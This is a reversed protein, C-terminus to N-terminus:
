NEYSFTIILEFGSKYDPNYKIKGDLDDEIIRKVHNLGLGSGKTTTVGEDFIQNYDLIDKSLNEGIDKISILFEKNNKIFEIIIKKANKKRSNSLINDIVVSLEIPQFKKIYVESDNKFEVDLKHLALYTNNIYKVIYKVIDEETELTAKLFNSKTTFRTITAIKENALSIGQIFNIIEKNNLKIGKDLKRKLLLIKKSIDDSYVGIIHNSDRLDKYEVTESSKYRTIQKQQNEVRSEAKKRAEEEERAKKEAKLKAVEAEAREKEKKLTELEAKRRKEEERIAKAEAEKRKKEEEFAKKEAEKRKAEEEEAKREAEEKEKQLKLFNKEILHVNTKLDEDNTQNAIIELDSIFKQQNEDIKDNVINVLDRNYDIIQIDKNSSLRKIIQIFDLKSGLNSKAIDINDSDKDESLENRYDSAIKNGESGDGFYKNRKFGEGWLVGVVYRELRRHALEFASLLEFYGATEVLGGDRSSVEKFEEFDDTVIEIRGFLDRTGLFRNYGQQSRFDIGWSDNGTEGFPQVRFGNKFLFISGFNVPEIGMRKKFNVKAARNLFYLDIESHKIKEFYSPEKTHYILAGRDTIKTEIFGENILIKIHSTKIKLIDLIANKVYGNVKDRENYRKGKNPGSKYLGNEDENKERECIIKIQFDNKESFPNILKELSHKLNKIKERDWFLTNDIELITGSLSNNPFLNTKFEIPNYDVPIKIFDEKDNNEFDTWDINLQNVNGDIKRKSYLTLKKGLRDCSFRGIGKAGAYFRKKQIEDRYSSNKDEIDESGDKKASYALALWKDQLETKSMGKGDDAIIIKNVEFTILVNKAHADFSNKVLEFIAIYDDTILDKGVISKIGTKVTFFLQEEEM